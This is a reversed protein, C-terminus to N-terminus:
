FCFFGLLGICTVVIFYTIYSYSDFKVFNGPSQLMNNLKEIIKSCLFAKVNEIM